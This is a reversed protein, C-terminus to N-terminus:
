TATREKLWAMPMLVSLFSGNNNPITVRLPYCGGSADLRVRDSKIESLLKLFRPISVAIRLEGSTTAEVEDTAVDNQEALCLAIINNGAGWILGARNQNDAVAALRELAAILAGRDVEASNTSPEPVVRAYDPFTGGILKSRLTRNEAQIEIIKDDFRLTVPAKALRLFEQVTKGPVIIGPFAFSGPMAAKALAFGDTATVILHDDIAHLYSGNLYYRTEDNSIAFQTTGFFTRREIQIL